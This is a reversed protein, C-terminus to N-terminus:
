LINKKCCNERIDRRYYKRQKKTLIAHLISLHAFVVFAAFTGLFAYLKKKKKKQKIINKYCILTCHDFFAIPIVAFFTFRRILKSPVSFYSFFLSFINIKFSVKSFYLDTIVSMFMATRTM